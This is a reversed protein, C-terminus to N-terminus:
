SEALAIADRIYGATERIDHVPLDVPDLEGDIVATQYVDGAIVCYHGFLGRFDDTQWRLRAFHKCTEHEDDLQPETGTRSLILANTAKLAADWTKEAQRIYGSTEWILSVALLLSEPEGRYFSEGHLVRIRSRYDKLMDTFEPM